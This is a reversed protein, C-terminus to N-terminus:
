QDGKGHHKHTSFRTILEDFSRAEERECYAKMWGVGLQQKWHDYFKFDKCHDHSCYFVPFGSGDQYLVTGAQVQNTHAAYNPCIVNHKNATVKRDYLGQDRMFAVADFTEWAVKGTATKSVPRLRPPLPELPPKADLERWDLSCGTHHWTFHRHAAGPPHAPAYFIRACSVTSHDLGPFMELINHRRAVWEDVPCPTALPLIIRFKDLSGKDPNQHNYSTYGCHTLDTEVLGEVIFDLSVGGDFDLCAAHIERLNERTRGITGFHIKEEPKGRNTVAPDAKAPDTEFAGLIFGQENKNVTERHTGLFDIVEEWEVERAWEEEVFNDLANKFLYLKM